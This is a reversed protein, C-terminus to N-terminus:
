DEITKEEFVKQPWTFYVEISESTLKIESAHPVLIQLEKIDIEEEIGEMSVKFNLKKSFNLPNGVYVRYYYAINSNIYEAILEIMM